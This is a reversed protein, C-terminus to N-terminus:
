VIHDAYMCKARGNASDLDGRCGLLILQADDNLDLVNQIALGPEVEELAQYQVSGNRPGMVQPITNLDERRIATFNKGSRNVGQPWTLSLTQAM